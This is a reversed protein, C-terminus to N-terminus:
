IKFKVGLNVFMSNHRSKDANKEYGTLGLDYGADLFFFLVDVGVGGTASVLLKEFDKEDLKIEDDGKHNVSLVHAGTIGGYIRINFINEANPNIFRFGLRVPVAITSITTEKEFDIDNNDKGEEILYTNSTYTGYWIGPSVYFHNGFTMSIGAQYGLQGDISKAHLSSDVLTFRTGETTVSGINIGGFIRVDKFHESGGDQANTNQMGITGILCALAAMKLTKKM